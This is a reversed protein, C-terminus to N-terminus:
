FQAIQLARRLSSRFFITILCLDNNQSTRSYKVRPSLIKQSTLNHNRGVVHNKM